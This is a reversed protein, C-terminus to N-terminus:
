RYPAEPSAKAAKQAEAIPLEKQEQPCWEGQVAQESGQASAPATGIEIPHEKEDQPRPAQMEELERFLDPQRGEREPDPPLQLDCIRRVPINV